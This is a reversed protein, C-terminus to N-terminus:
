LWKRLKVRASSIQSRVTAESSGLIKAVESTPLDELDRLVLAAREKEPLRALAREIQRIRQDEQLLQEPTGPGALRAEDIPETKRRRRLADRCVNVTVRYVWASPDRAADLQGRNRYLRLLVEQAADEADAPNGLLRRSLRLVVPAFRGLLTELPIKSAETILGIM